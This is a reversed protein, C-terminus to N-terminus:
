IKPDKQNEKKKWQDLWRVNFDTIMFIELISRADRMDEMFTHSAPNRLITYFGNLINTFAAMYKEKDGGKLDPPDYRKKFENIMDSFNLNENEKKGLMKKLKQEIFTYARTTLDKVDKSDGLSASLNQDMFNERIVTQVIKPWPSIRPKARANNQPTDIQNGLYAKVDKNNLTRNVIELKLKNTPDNSEDVDKELKDKMKQSGEIKRLIKRKEAEIKIDIEEASGENNKNRNEEAERKLNEISKIKKELGNGYKSDFEAVSNLKNLLARTKEVFIELYESSVFWDRSTNIQIRDDLLIIEGYFRPIYKAGFRSKVVSKDGVTLGKKKLLIKADKFSEGSLNYVAWVKGIIKGNDDKIDEHWVNELFKLSKTDFKTVNKEDGNICVKVPIVNYAPGLIDLLEKKHPFNDDIPVNVTEEIFNVLNAMQSRTNTDINEFRISTFSDEMSNPEEEKIEFISQMVENFTIKPNSDIIKRYKEFDMKVVYIKKDKMKTRLSLTDCIGSGAYIGIGLEGIQDKGKFSGGISFAQSILIERDMGSGYDKIELDNEELKIEISKSGSDIANQIYERLWTIGGSYLRRGLTDIIGGYVPPINNEVM